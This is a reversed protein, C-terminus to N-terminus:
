RNESNICEQMQEDQEFRSINGGFVPNTSFHGISVQVQFGVSYANDFNYNSLEADIVRPM